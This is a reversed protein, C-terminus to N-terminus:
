VCVPITAAHTAFDFSSCTSRFCGDTKIMDSLLTKFPTFAILIDKADLSGTFRGAIQVRQSKNPLNALGHPKRFRIGSEPSVAV